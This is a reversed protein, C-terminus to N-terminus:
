CAESVEVSMFSVLLERARKPDRRVLFMLLGICLALTVGAAIAKGLTESTANTATKICRTGKAEYDRDCEIQLTSKLVCSTSNDRLLM